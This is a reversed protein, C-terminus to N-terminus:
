LLSADLSIKFSDLMFLVKFSYFFCGFIFVLDDFLFLFLVLFLLIVYWLCILCRMWIVDNSFSVGFSIIRWDYKSKFVAAPSFVSVYLCSMFSYSLSCTSFYISDYISINIFMSEKSIMEIVLIGLPM